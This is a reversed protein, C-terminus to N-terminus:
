PVVELTFSARFNIGDIQYQPRSGAKFRVTLVEGSDPTTWYFPNVGGLLLYFQELIQKQFVSLIYQVNIIRPAATSRLRIKIPGTAMATALVNDSPLDSYGDSLPFEPLPSYLTSTQAIRAIESDSLVVNYRQVEDITGNAAANTEWVNDSPALGTSPALTASPALGTLALILRNAVLNGIRTVPYAELNSAVAFTGRRTGGAFIGLTTGSLTAAMALWTNDVVVFGTSLFSDPAMTSDIIAGLYGSPNIVLHCRESFRTPFSALVRYHGNAAGNYALTITQPM